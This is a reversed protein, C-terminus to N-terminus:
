VMEVMALLGLVDFVVKYGCQVFKLPLQLQLIFNYDMQCTVSDLQQSTTLKTDVELKGSESHDLTEFWLIVGLPQGMAVHVEGVVLSRV